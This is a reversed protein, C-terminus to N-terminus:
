FAQVHNRSIEEQEQKVTRGPGGQTRSLLVHLGKNVGRYLTALRQFFRISHRHQKQSMGLIEERRGVASQLQQDHM